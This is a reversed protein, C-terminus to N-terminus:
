KSEAKPTHPAFLAFFAIMMGTCILAFLFGGLNGSLKGTIEFFLEEANKAEPRYALAIITPMGVLLLNSFATWFQARDETGCLDVLIRSLHPRLYGVVLLGAALTIAVELLYSVISNM